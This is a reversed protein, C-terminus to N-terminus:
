SNILMGQATSLDDVITFIKDLKAFGIIKKVYDTMGAYIITGQEQNIHKFLSILMGIGSSDVLPVQSLELVLKNTGSNVLEEKIKDKLENSQLLTVEGSIVALLAGTESSFVVNAM